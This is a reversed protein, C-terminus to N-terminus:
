STVPAVVPHDAAQREPDSALLEEIRTLLDAKAAEDDVDGLLVSLAQLALVNVGFDHEAKVRDREATRNQSLLILPAAYAAQTSFVLNLLIFPYPDFDGGRLYHAAVYGNYAVWILILVTQTLIFAWSGFVATVKDAVRAPWPRDDQGM